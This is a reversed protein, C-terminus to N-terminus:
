NVTFPVRFGASKKVWEDFPFMSKANGICSVGFHQKLAFKALRDARVNYVLFSHGKIKHIRADELFKFFDNPNIHPYYGKIFSEVRNVWNDRAVFRYNAKNFSSICDSFDQCDTYVSIESNSYGHSQAYLFAEVMAFWEHKDQVSRGRKVGFCEVMEDNHLAIFSWGIAKKHDKIKGKLKSPLRGLQSGDTYLIINGMIMQPILKLLSM